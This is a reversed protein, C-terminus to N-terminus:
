PQLEKPPSGQVGLRERVERFRRTAVDSPRGRACMGLRGLRRHPNEVILRGEADLKSALTAYANLFRRDELAVEYFSLVYVYFFLNYTLFPYSVSLFTTGIGWRCPGTPTRTDWHRLLTAVAGDAVASGSRYEPYHRLFDLIYLTAGPNSLESGPGSGFKSFSCRWGGDDHLTSAFHDATTTLAPHEALGFRAVARAAEATYCPYMPSRPGVRIRGDDRCVALVREVAGDVAEHDPGVGLEHLLLLAGITSFPNGVYIKGDTSAWFDAGNDHRHSLVADVDSRFVSKAM